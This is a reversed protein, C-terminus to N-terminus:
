WKVADLVSNTYPRGLIICVEIACNENCRHQRVDDRSNSWGPHVLGCTILDLFRETIEHPPEYDEHIRKGRFFCKVEYSAFPVM